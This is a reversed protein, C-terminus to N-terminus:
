LFVKTTYQRSASSNSICCCSDPASEFSLLFAANIILLFDDQFFFINKILLCVAAVHSHSKTFRLNTKNRTHNLCSSFFGGFFFFTLCLFHILKISCLRYIRTRLLLRVSIYHTNLRCRLESQQQPTYICLTRFRFPM